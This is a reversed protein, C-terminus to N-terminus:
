DKEARKSSINSLRVVIYTSGFWHGKCWDIRSIWPCIWSIKAFIKRSNAIKFFLSKKPPLKSFFFHKMRMNYPWLKKTLFTPDFNLHNGQNGATKVRPLCKAGSHVKPLAFTWWLSMFWDSKDPFGVKVFTQHCRPSLKLALFFWGGVVSFFSAMKYNKSQIQHCHNVRVRFKQYKFFSHLWVCDVFDFVIACLLDNSKQKTDFHRWM